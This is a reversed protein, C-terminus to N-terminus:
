IKCSATFNNWATSYESISSSDDSILGTEMHKALHLTALLELTNEYSVRAISPSMRYSHQTNELAAFIAEKWRRELNLVSGLTGNTPVPNRKKDDTWTRSSKRSMQPDGHMWVAVSSTEAASCGVAKLITTGRDGCQVIRRYEMSQGLLINITGFIRQSTRFQVLLSRKQSHATTTPPATSLIEVLRDKKFLFLLENALQSLLFSVSRRSRGEDDARTSSNGCLLRDMDVGYPIRSSIHCLSFSQRNGVLSSANKLHQVSRDFRMYFLPCFGISQSGDEGVNVEYQKHLRTLEPIESGDLCDCDLVLMIRKKGCNATQTYKRYSEISESVLELSKSHNLVIFDVDAHIIMELLSSHFQLTTPPLALRLVSLAAINTLRGMWETSETAGPSYKCSQGPGNASPKASEGIAVIRNGGRLIGLGYLYSMPGFGFIGYRLPRSNM